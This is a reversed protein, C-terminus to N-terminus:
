QPTSPKQFALFISCISTSIINALIYYKTEFDIFNLSDLLFVASLGSFFVSFSLLVRDTLGSCALLLGGVAATTGIAYVSDSLNSEHFYPMTYSVMGLFAFFRSGQLSRGTGTM